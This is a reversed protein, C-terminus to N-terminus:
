RVAHSPVSGVRQRFASGGIPPESRIAPQPSPFIECPCKGVSDSQARARHGDDHPWITQISGSESEGNRPANQGPGDITMPQLTLDPLAEPVVDFTEASEVDHDDSM